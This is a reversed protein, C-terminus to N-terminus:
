NTALLYALWSLAMAYMNMKIKKKRKRVLKEEKDVIWKKVRM